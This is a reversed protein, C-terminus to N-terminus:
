PKVGAFTADANEHHKIPVCLVKVVEHADSIAHVFVHVDVV